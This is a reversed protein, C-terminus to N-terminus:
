GQQTQQNETAPSGGSRPGPFWKTLQQRAKERHEDKVHGVVTALAVALVGLDDTYGIFPAVDPIADMPLIFYGLAATIVGRAWIPTDKDKLAYYLVLTKEVVERGARRGCRGLKAWFSDESYSQAYDKEMPCCYLMVGTKTEGLRM